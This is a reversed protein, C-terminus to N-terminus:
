LEIYHLTIDKYTGDKSHFGKPITGLQTFGLKKYLALAPANDSVVANFQLISFGYRPARAVCDRVLAEGVGNGRESKLVAFSANCIHGCRGINNPHLIYLGLVRGNDDVAIGTFNQNTFFRHAEAEKLTIEQPFALGDEVVDNWIKVAGTLYNKDYEIVNIKM